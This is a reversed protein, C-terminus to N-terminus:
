RKRSNQTSIKYQGIGDPRSLDVLVYRFGSPASADIVKNRKPMMLEFTAVGNDWTDYLATALADYATTATPAVDNGDVDTESLRGYRKASNRFSRDSRLIPYNVALFNAMASGGRDGSLNGADTSFDTDSTLSVAETYSQVMTTHLIGELAVGVTLKFAGILDESSQTGGVHRAYYVNMFQQGTDDVWVDRLLYDLSSIAM